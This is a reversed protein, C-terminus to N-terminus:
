VPSNLEGAWEETSYKMLKRAREKHKPSREASAALCYSSLLSQNRCSMSSAGSLRCTCGTAIKDSARLWGRVTRRCEWRCTSSLHTCSLTVEGGKVGRGEFFDISWIFQFKSWIWKDCLTRSKVLSMQRCGVVKRRDASLPVNTKHSFLVFIESDFNRSCKKILLNNRFPGERNSRSYVAVVDVLERTIHFQM